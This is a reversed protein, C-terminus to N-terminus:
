FSEVNKIHQYIEFAKDDGRLLLTDKIKDFNTVDDITPKVVM